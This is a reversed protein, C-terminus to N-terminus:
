LGQLLVERIVGDSFMGEAGKSYACSMDLVGDNFTITMEAVTAVNALKVLQLGASIAEKGMDDIAITRLAM